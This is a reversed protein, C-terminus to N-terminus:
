INFARFSPDPQLDHLFGLCRQLSVTHESNSRRYLVMRKILILESFGKVEKGTHNLCLCRLGSWVKVAVFFNM